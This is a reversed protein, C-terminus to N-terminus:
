PANGKQQAPRSYINWQFSFLVSYANLSLEAGFLKLVYCKFGRMKRVYIRPHLFYTFLWDYRDDGRSHGLKNKYEKKWYLRM